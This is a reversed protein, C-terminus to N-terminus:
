DAFPDPEEEDDLGAPGPQAPTATKPRVPEPPPEPGPDDSQSLPQIEEGDKPRDLAQLNDAVVESAWRRTGDQATWSRVQLRGEVAILRGKRVYDRVFDATQRWAVIDIFDTERENTEPNRARRDVAIRMKAVHVGNTTYSCDPDRVLRGILIVRNLM